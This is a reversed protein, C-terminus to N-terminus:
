SPDSCPHYEHEPNRLASLMAETLSCDKGIHFEKKGKIVLGSSNYIAFIRDEEWDYCGCDHRNFSLEMQANEYHCQEGREAWDVDVSLRGVFANSVVKQSILEKFLVEIGTNRFDEELKQRRNELEGEELRQRVALTRREIENEQEEKKFIDAIKKAEEKPNM